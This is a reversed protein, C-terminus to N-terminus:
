VRSANDKAELYDSLTKVVSYSPESGNALRYLTAYNVGSDRSVKALNAFELRAKIEDLTLMFKEGTNFKNNVLM